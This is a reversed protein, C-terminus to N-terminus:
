LVVIIFMHGNKEYCGAFCPGAAPTVGTKCGIFGPVGLMRNTNEWEYTPGKEQMSSLKKQPCLEDDTGLMSCTTNEDMKIHANVIPECSWEATSCIRKLVPESMVANALKCM